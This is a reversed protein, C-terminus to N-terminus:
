ETEGQQSGSGTRRLDKTRRRDITRDDSSNGPRDDTVIAATQVVVRPLTSRDAGPHARHHTGHHSSIAVSPTVRRDPRSVVVRRINVPSHGTDSIIASARATKIAAAIIANPAVVASACCRVTKEQTPKRAAHDPVRASTKAVVAPM